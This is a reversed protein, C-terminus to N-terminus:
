SDLLVVLHIYDKINLVCSGELLSLSVGVLELGVGGTVSLYHCRPGVREIGSDTTENLERAEVTEFVVHATHDGLLNVGLDDAVKCIVQLLQNGGVRGGVGTHEHNLSEGVLGHVLKRIAVSGERVASLEVVHDLEDHEVIIVAGSGGDFGETDLPAVLPCLLLVGSVVLEVLVLVVSVTVLGQAGDVAVIAPSMLLQGLELIGVVRAAEEIPVM